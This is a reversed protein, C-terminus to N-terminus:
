TRLNPPLTPLNTIADCPNYLMWKCWFPFSNATTVCYLFSLQPNPPMPTGSLVRATRLLAWCVSFLEYAAVDKWVLKTWVVTLMGQVRWMWRSGNKHMLALWVQPSCFLFHLLYHWLLSLSFCNPGIKLKFGSEEIVRDLVLAPVSAELLTAFKFNWLSIKLLSICVM